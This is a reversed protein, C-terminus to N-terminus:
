SLGLLVNEKFFINKAHLTTCSPCLFLILEGRLRVTPYKRGEKKNIAIFTRSINTFKLVNQYLSDLKHAYVSSLESKRNGTAHKEDILYFM